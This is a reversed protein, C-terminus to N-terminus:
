GLLLNEDKPWSTILCGYKGAWLSFINDVLPRIIKIAFPGKLPAVRSRILFSLYNIDFIGNYKRGVGAIERAINWKPIGTKTGEHRRLMGVPNNISYIKGVQAMELLLEWDMVYHSEINLGGLKLFIDRKFLMSPQLFFLLRKIRKKEFPRAVVKKIINGREDTKAGAGYILDADPYKQFAKGMAVLAGPFYMDDSNLWGVIEGTAKQIGKNIADSQGKDKESVWYKLYKAYKKIIDVSKDTSGGDVIIYELDPYGQLLVSRITEEIYKHQNFSPTVISIKPLTTDYVDESVMDYSNEIWPWRKKGPPPPPLKSLNPCTM